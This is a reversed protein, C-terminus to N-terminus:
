ISTISKSVNKYKQLILSIQFTITKYIKIRNKYNEKIPVNTMNYTNM